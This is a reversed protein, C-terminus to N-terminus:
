FIKQEALSKPYDKIIREGIEVAKPFDHKWIGGKNQMSTYVWAQEYLIDPFIGTGKAQEGLAELANLYLSTREEATSKQYIFKLRKLDADALAALTNGATHYRLLDQFIKVAAINFSSSDSLPLSMSSFVRHDSFWNPDSIIFEDGAFAGLQSAPNMVVDIARHALLDYLSPRLNRSSSDGALLDRLTGLDVRQLLEADSVSALFQKVSEDTIKKLSWIRIDDGRDAGMDTRQGIRYKNDQFFKWNTEALLSQLVSKEPQKATSIDKKLSYVIKALYDEELKSQFLMRHIVSKILMVSNGEARARDALRNVLAFAEKPQGSIALSDVEKFSAEWTKPTNRQAISRESLFALSLLFLASLFARM